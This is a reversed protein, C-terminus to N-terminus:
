IWGLYHLLIGVGYGVVTSSVAIVLMAVVLANQNVNGRKKCSVLVLMCIILALGGTIGYAAFPLAERAIDQFSPKTEEATKTEKKEAM